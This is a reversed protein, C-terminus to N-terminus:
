RISTAKCLTIGGGSCGERSATSHQLLCVESCDTRIALRVSKALPVMCRANVLTYNM